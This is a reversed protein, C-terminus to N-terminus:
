LGIVLNGVRDVELTQGPLVLTTTAPEEVLLPGALKTGPALGARDHVPLAIKGAAGGAAHRIDVLRTRPEAATTASADAISPLPIDAVTITRLNVLEIPTDELAFTYRRRHREHFREPLGELTFMGDGIPVQVTHEQGKYRMDLSRRSPGIAAGDLGQRLLEDRSSAELDAFLAEVQAPDCGELPLVRTQVRDVRPRTMLMGWASFTAPFPPVIVRRAGLEAAIAAAHVPGGGGFAVLSFDRPDHGRRISILKLADVTQEAMLALVGAAAADVDVGLRAAVPEFAARALRADAKLRGGLFREADLLGSVVLADTVTPQAGGRGYCAPGPDAGASIPGIRLAGGADFHVISGGGAGIEVIDVVPAKVPYGPWLPSWELKYETTVPVEGGEILACKATTGGIDLAILNEEGIVEGMLAAGTIGAVPGSEILQIPQERAAAFSGTGGNSRMAFMPADMGGAALREELDGLYRDLIPQVYANLVATSTREYERWERTVDTSATVAVGPLLERLKAVALREHSPNAYAHLFCVAVAEIGDERCCDAISSLADLDIERLVDGGPGVREDLEFRYRRPVFPEPKRFRLNYMDPRNGRGIELSDRFGRTTVLATKVGRRQTIANIVVTTGHIFAAVQALDVDGAALADTVGRAFDDPVTSAKAEWLRGTAGDFAVVDTFTGGIDAAVRLIGSM